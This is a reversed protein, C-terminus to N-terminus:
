KSLENKIICIGLCYSLNTSRPTEYLLKDISIIERVIFIRDTCQRKQFFNLNM